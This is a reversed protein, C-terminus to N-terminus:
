KIQNTHGLSITYGIQMFKLNLATLNVSFQVMILMAVNRLKQGTLLGDTSYGTATQILKNRYMSAYYVGEYDRFDSDILDSSQQIPFSNYFYVFSPKMNAEVSINDYSKPVNPLQNSVVMIKSPYSVGYFNNFSETSNHLYTLGNKFSYLNNQLTCFNEAYFTMAGQWHPLRGAMDLKYVVTKAQFDLIDFPYITNPYDPLYGKPPTDSLKPISILLEKHYPDVCTFIFPRGGLAEICSIGRQFQVITVTLAM